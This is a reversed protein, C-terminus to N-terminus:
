TFATPGPESSRCRVGISGSSQRREGDCPSTLPRTALKPIQKEAVLADVVQDVARSIADADGRVRLEVRDDAVEFVDPFRRLAEANDRRVLGVRDMGAILPVVGAPEFNNCRRIHDVFSM